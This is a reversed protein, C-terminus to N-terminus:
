LVYNLFLLASRHTGTARLTLNFVRETIELFQWSGREAARGTDLRPGTVSAKGAGPRQGQQERQRSLRKRGSDCPEAPRQEFTVEELFGDRVIGDLDGGRVGNSVKMWNVAM